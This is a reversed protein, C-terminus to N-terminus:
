TRTYLGDVLLAFDDADPLRTEIRQTLGAAALAFTTRTTGRPTQKVLALSEGEWRGSAPAAPPYGFSDFWWWLVTEGDLDVAFVGHGSVAVAGDREEVYDQALAFGGATTRFSLRATAEGAAAWPSAALRESGHWDGALAALRAHAPTLQPRSM